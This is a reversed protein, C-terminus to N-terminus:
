KETGVDGTGRTGASRELLTPGTFAGEPDWGLNDSGQDVDFEVGPTPSVVLRAQAAELLTM